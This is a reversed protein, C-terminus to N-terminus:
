RSSRDLHMIQNMVVGRNRALKARLEHVNIPELYPEEEEEKLMPSADVADKLSMSLFDSSATTGSAPSNACDHTSTSPVAHDPASFMTLYDQKGDELLARNVDLYPVNLEIYHTRVNDELLKGVSNVLDTFSPRLSPEAKWCQCM